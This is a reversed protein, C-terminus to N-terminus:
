AIEYHAMVSYDTCIPHWRVIETSSIVSGGRGLSTVETFTTANQAKKMATTQVLMCACLGELIENIM